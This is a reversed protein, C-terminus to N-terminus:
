MGSLFLALLAYVIVPPTLVFAATFVWRLVFRNQTLLRAILLWVIGFLVVLIGTGEPALRGMLWWAAGIPAAIFFLSASLGAITAITAQAGSRGAILQMRPY